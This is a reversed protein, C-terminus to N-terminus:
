QWLTGVMKLQVDSVAVMAMFTHYYPAQPCVSARTLLHHPIAPMRLSCGYSAPWTPSEISDCVHEVSIARSQM